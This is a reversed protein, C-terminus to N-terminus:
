STSGPHLRVQVTLDPEGVFHVDFDWETAGGWHGNRKVQMAEYRSGCPMGYLMQLQPSDTHLLPTGLAQSGSLLLSAVNHMSKNYICTWKAVTNGGIRCSSLLSPDGGTLFIVIVADMRPVVCSFCVVVYTGLFSLMRPLLASSLNGVPFDDM